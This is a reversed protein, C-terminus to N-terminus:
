RQSGAHRRQAQGYCHCNAPFYGSGPDNPRELAEILLLAEGYRAEMENFTYLVTAAVNVLLILTGAFDYCRSPIDDSAGVEIIESLRRRRRM